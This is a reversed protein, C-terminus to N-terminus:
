SGKLANLYHFLMPLAGPLDPSSKTMICAVCKKPMISMVTEGFSVQGDGAMAVRGHHRVAIVTTSRIM